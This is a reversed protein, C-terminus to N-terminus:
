YKYLTCETTLGLKKKKKQCYHSVTLLWLGHVCMELMPLAVHWIRIPKRKHARTQNGLIDVKVKLSTEARAESM